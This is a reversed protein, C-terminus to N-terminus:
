VLTNAVIKWYREKDVVAHAVHKSGKFGELGTEWGRQEAQRASAEVWDWPVMLDSKSYVYVRKARDEFLSPDNLRQRVGEIPNETGTVAMYVWCLCLYIWMSVWAPAWAYGPPNISLLMARHSVGIEPSGPASDIIMNRINLATNTKTQYAQALQIIANAGGNSYICANVTRGPHSLLVDVAPEIRKSWGTVSLNVFDYVNSTILMIITNPYEAIFRDAYRSVLKSNAAMWTCLVLIPRDAADDTPTHLHVNPSLRNFKDYTTM